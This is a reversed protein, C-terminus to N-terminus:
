LTPKQEKVELRSTCSKLHEYICQLEVRGKQVQVRIQSLLRVAQLGQFDLRGLALQEIASVFEAESVDGDGEMDLAEVLELLRDRSVIRLIESPLKGHYLAVEEPSIRNNKFVDLAHFSQQIIPRLRILRKKRDEKSEQASELAVQVINATVLNMLAISVIIITFGFYIFLYGRHKMLPTYVSAVSDLTVFQVLFLMIGDFSRFYTDIIERTESVNRLLSNKAILEVAFCAGVFIALFLLCLTSVMTSSANFLGFSLKWLSEFIPLSRLVRLIRLLRLVRLLVVMELDKLLSADYDSFFNVSVGVIGNVVIVCDFAVSRAFLTRWGNAVIRLILEVLYICLFM